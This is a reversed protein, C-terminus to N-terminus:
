YRNADQATELSHALFLFNYHLAYVTTEHGRVFMIFTNSIMETRVVTQEAKNSKADETAEESARIM